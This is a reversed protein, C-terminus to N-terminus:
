QLQAYSFLVHFARCWILAYKYKSVDVATPVTYNVNGQTALIPGLDVAGDVGLVSSLYIRLDPGNITEFNEFRLIQKGNDQILLVKGKVEHARAVLQSLADYLFSLRQPLPQRSPPRIDGAALFRIQQGSAEIAGYGTINLGPDIGLIVM